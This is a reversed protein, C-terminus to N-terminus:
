SCGGQILCRLRWEQMWETVFQVESKQTDAVPAPPLNATTENPFLGNEDWHHVAGEILIFPESATSKRPKAGQEFAHPTAPRWPDQQGDIFALRPYSIDYGGYCIISEYALDLTRSVIPLQNKPVGSGTQLFGWETCYQYPWSRWSQSIDDQSYHTANHTTFCEDQTEGGKACPAVYTQNLWGIMNLMQNVLSSTAKYGGAQILSAATSALGATDPFLQETSSLNGCYEYFSPDNVAPDWNRSQWGEIGLTLVNAFDNTYTVNELGFVTKLRLTLDSENKGILVNDVIHTITRQATICDQPGYEAIPEFYEWYDYIAKTVGSSSITGFFVDPYQVRLFANFAGAYSGGYGIYATTKSTLDVDEFGPFVINQAFYAEDALAQETTLFRLNKTSLDPTPFSEGYYRHELVVGIGHTAQALQALIGKIVPGGPKYYSADFWYRLNFTANTHPEYLTENQFHDVPVSFNHTPYLLSPDVDRKQHTSVTKRLDRVTKRGSLATSLPLTALLLSFVKM